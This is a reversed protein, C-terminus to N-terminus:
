GAPAPPMRRENSSDGPRTSVSERPPPCVVMPEMLLTAPMGGEMALGPSAQTRAVDSGPKREYALSLARNDVDEAASDCEFGRRTGVAALPGAPVARAPCVAHEAVSRVFLSPAAQLAPPPESKLWM